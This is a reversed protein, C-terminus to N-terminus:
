RGGLSIATLKPFALLGLGRIAHATVVVLIPVIIWYLPYPLEPFFSIYLMDFVILIPGHLLFITFSAGSRRILFKAIASKEILVAIPWILLPGFFYFLRRDNLEFIVISLSIALFILIAPVAFRDFDFINRRFKALMGGMYFNVIMNNRLILQGDLDFYAIILIALLGLWMANRLLFSFIPFLAFIIIIDRLFHTPYNIPADFVGFISNLWNMIEVPYLQVRFEAGFIASYQGYFVAMSLIVNFIIFPVAITKVKDYITEAYTRNRTSSYYLFGSIMSLVPVTFRFIANSFLSKTFDFWTEYSIQLPVHPPVHLLVIGVILVYRLLSIRDRIRNDM